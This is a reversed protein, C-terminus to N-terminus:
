KKENLLNEKYSNYAKLENEKIFPKYEIDYKKFIEKVLFETFYPNRILIPGLMYTLFMNDKIIGEVNNDLSSGFGEKVEFLNDENSDVLITSRNQFGIIEDEVLDNLYVQEGVLRDRVEEINYDFIKLGNVKDDNLYKIYNGFLNISEGTAFIFGKNDIYEKLDNRRKKLDSLALLLNDRAGSGLYVFQYDNFSFEDDLSKYDVSVKINHGELHSKLALINGNEGYLNLLDYYLHLIKIEKM